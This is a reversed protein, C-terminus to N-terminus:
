RRSLVVALVATAIAVVSLGTSVWLLKTSELFGIASAGLAAGAAVVLGFAVAYLGVSGIPWTRKPVDTM